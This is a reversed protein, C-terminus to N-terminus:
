QLELLGLRVDDHLKWKYRKTGPTLGPGKVRNVIGLELMDDLEDEIAALPKNWKEAIEMTFLDETHLLECCLQYRISYPNMTDKLMKTIINYVETDAKNVGHVVSLAYASVMTQGILRGPMEPSPPITIRRRRDRSVETRMIATLNALALIIELMDKPITSDLDRQMLHNIFGKMSSMITQEPAKSQGTAIAINRDIIKRNIAAKDEDNVRLEFSMFREGLFSHDASRLQQTGCIIFTSKINRYDRSIKNRFHPSSDKDYFDRMESFIREVDPQRLLADADKVILTKGSIIPILGHDDDDGPTDKWGSFLGTFTSKSVVQDSASVAKAIRTKGTSAPGIIKLWLQEMDDFKISWISALVLSLCRRMDDTTHYAKQFSDLAKDYTNCTHDEIITEPVVKILSPDKIEECYSKLVTLTETKNELYCDRLDFGKPTDDPWRVVNISRPKQPSNHIHERVKEIGKYGADDNDYCIYLDKDQLPQCWNQKFTNAGPVGIATVGDTGTGMSAECALKDWHGECLWVEQEPNPDFNYLAAALTPTGYINNNSHVYKYLNNMSGNQAFTPIVFTDNFPNYRIENYELVNLPIEKLQLLKTVDNTCCKQHFLSIFTYANGKLGCVKCDWQFTDTNYFFHNEKGCFVCNGRMNDKPVPVAEMNTHFEYPTRTM